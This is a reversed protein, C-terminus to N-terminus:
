IKQAITMGEVTPLMIARFNPNNALTENFYNMSNKAKETTKEMWPEGYVHGFLFTNDGVILGGPAVNEMAWDLYEAYGGKDADIFIFDPQFDVAKLLELADGQRIEIKNKHESKELLEKAKSFHEKNKELSLVRGEAPIAEAFWLTSYGYLTGIELISKSGMLQILFKLLGGEYISVNIGLKGDRDLSQRIEKHLSSEKVFLKRIYDIAKTSRDRSM